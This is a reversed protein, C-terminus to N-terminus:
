CTGTLTAVVTLDYAPYEQGAVTVTTPTVADLRVSNILPDEIRIVKALGGFRQIIEDTTTDLDAQASTDNLRSGVVMVPVAGTIIAGPAADDPSLSPRTVGICPLEAVDDPLWRHVPWSVGTLLQAVAGRLETIM